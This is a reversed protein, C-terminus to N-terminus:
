EEGETDPSCMRCDNAFGYDRRYRTDVAFTQLSNM